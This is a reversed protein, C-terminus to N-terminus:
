WWGLAKGAAWGGFLGGPPVLYKVAFMGVKALACVQRIHDAVEADRKARAAERNDLTTFGQEIRKEFREFGEELTATREALKGIDKALGMSDMHAARANESQESM